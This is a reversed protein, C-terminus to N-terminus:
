VKDIQFMAVLKKDIEKLARPSLSGIIGVILDKNLTLLKNLRIVSDLKLGSGKAMPSGKKILLSHELMDKTQSTIFAVCTDGLADPKMLVLAPRLKQSALDTFPFRVLVIDGKTVKTV